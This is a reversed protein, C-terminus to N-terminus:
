PYPTESLIKIRSELSKVKKRTKAMKINSGGKWSHKGDWGDHGSGLFGAPIMIEKGCDCLLRKYLQTGEHVSEWEVDEFQTSCYPCQEKFDQITFTHHLTMIM